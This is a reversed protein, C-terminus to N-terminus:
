KGADSAASAIVKELRDKEPHEPQTELVRAYARAAEKLKGQKEYLEGLNQLAPWFTPNAEVAKEFAEEATKADLPDHSRAFRAAAARGLINSALPHRPELELGKRSLVIAKDLDGSQLAQDADRIVQVGASVPPGADEVATAVPGTAPKDGPAKCSSCGSGLALMAICVLRKM